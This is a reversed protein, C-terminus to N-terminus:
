QKVFSHSEINTHITTPLQAAHSKDTHALHGPAGVRFPISRGKHTVYHCVELSEQLTKNGERRERSKPLSTSGELFLKEMKSSSSKFTATHAPPQARLLCWADRQAGLNTGTFLSKAGALGM